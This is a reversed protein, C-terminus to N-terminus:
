KTKIELVELNNDVFNTYRSRIDGLQLMFDEIEPYCQNNEMQIEDLKFLLDEAEILLGLIKSADSNNNKWNRERIDPMQINSDQIKRAIMELDEKRKEYEEETVNIGEKTFYLLM